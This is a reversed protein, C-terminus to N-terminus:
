SVEAFHLWRMYTGANYFLIATSFNISSSRPPLHRWIHAAMKISFETKYISLLHYYYFHRLPSASWLFKSMLLSQRQAPRYRRLALPELHIESVDHGLTIERFISISPTPLHSYGNRAPCKKQAAIPIRLWLPADLSIDKLGRSIEVRSRRIM